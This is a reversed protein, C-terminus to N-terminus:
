EVVVLTKDIIVERGVSATIKLEYVGREILDLFITVENGEIECSGKQVVASDGTKKLEYDASAIIVLDQLNKSTIVATIERKEGEHFTIKNVAM